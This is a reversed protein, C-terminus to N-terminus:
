LKGSMDSTFFTHPFHFYFPYNYELPIHMNELSMIKCNMSKVVYSCIYSASCIVRYPILFLKYKYKM